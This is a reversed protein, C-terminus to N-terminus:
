NRIWIFKPFYINNRKIFMSVNGIIFIKNNEENSAKKNNELKIDNLPNNDNINSFIINKDIYDNYIHSIDNASKNEQSVEFIINTPKIQEFEIKSKFEKIENKVEEIEKNHEIKEKKFLNM